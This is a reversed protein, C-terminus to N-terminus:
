EGQSRTINVGRLLATIAVRWQEAGRSNENYSSSKDFALTIPQRSRATKKSAFKKKHPYAYVTLYASTDEENKGRMCDCGVIDILSLVRRRSEGNPIKPM